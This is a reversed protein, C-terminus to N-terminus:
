LEEALRPELKSFVWMGIALSVASVLVLYGVSTARPFRLDYMANRFVEAFRVMPNFSYIHRLPITTGLIETHRPVVSAPYVIPTAYFWLMLLIGM